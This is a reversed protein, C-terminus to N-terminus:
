AGGRYTKWRGSIKGERVLWVSDFWVLADAEWPHFFIFDGEDLGVKASGSLQAQNSMLNRVENGGGLLPNPVLGPPSAVDGPFGGGIMFFTVELNPNWRVVWPQLGPLFPLQAPDEKKLVPSALYLAPRHGMGLLEGFTAPGLFGSGMAIDNVPTTELAEGSYRFYTRSGGSNFTLPGAFLEPYAERGAEVFRLYRRQVAAFEKEVAAEKSGLFSPAFPVHGDYGMFGTFALSEPHGALIALMELLQESSMSGGRRLGVDIEVNIRLRTGLRHALSRYEDLRQPTDVLWQVGQADPYAVLLREAAAAPLPRGLLLDAPRELEELLEGIFGESFVMLRETQAADMLYRVLEVSPLSKTVLRLAVGDGLRSRVQAVNHDLADLDLVAADRGPAHRRLEANLGAFRDPHAGGLDHPKLWLVLGCALLLGAGGVGLALRLRRPLSRHKM